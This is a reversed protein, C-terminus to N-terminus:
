CRCASRVHVMFGAPHRYCAGPIATERYDAPRHRRQEAAAAERRRETPSEPCSYAEYGGGGVPECQSCTAYHLADADEWGTAQRFAALLLVDATVETM